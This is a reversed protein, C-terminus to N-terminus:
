KQPKKVIVAIENLEQIEWSPKVTIDWLLPQKDDPKFQSVAGVIMNADLFGPQRLAFVKQGTKMEQEKSITGIKATNDSNGQMVLNKDLGDIQVAIKLDPDTILKVKATRLQPYIDTIRGIISNDRALVFQGKEIGATGRCEITLENHQKDATIVDGLIYDYNQGVFSNLETLRKLNQREKILTQELNNYRNELEDYQKKPVTENRKDRTINSLSVNKITSLPLRFVHAFALQFRNSYNQPIM